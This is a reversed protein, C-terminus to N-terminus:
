CGPAAVSWDRGDSQIIVVAGSGNERVDFVFVVVIRQGVIAPVYVAHTEGAGWPRVLATTLQSCRNESMRDPSMRDGCAATPTPKLADRFM